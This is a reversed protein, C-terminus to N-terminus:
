NIMYKRLEKRKQLLKKVINLNNFIMNTQPTTEIQKRRWIRSLPLLSQSDLSVQENLLGGYFVPLFLWEL